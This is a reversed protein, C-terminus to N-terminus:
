AFAGQVAEYGERRIFNGNRTLTGVVAGTNTNVFNVDFMEPPNLKAGALQETRAYVIASPLRPKFSVSSGDVFQLVIQIAM